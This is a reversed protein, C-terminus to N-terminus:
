DIPIILTQRDTQCAKTEVDAVVLRRVAADAATKLKIASMM